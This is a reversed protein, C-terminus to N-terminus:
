RLRQAVREADEDPLPDVLTGILRMLEQHEPGSGRRALFEGLPVLSAAGGSPGNPQHRVMVDQEGPGRVLHWTDGNASAYILREPRSM